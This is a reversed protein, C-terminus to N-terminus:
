EGRDSNKLESKLRVKVNLSKKEWLIWSKQEEWKWGDGVQELEFHWLLRALILRM